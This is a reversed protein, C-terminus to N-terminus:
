STETKAVTESVTTVDVYKHTPLQLRLDDILMLFILLGLWSGQPMGGRLTVWNSYVNAIKVGNRSAGGKLTTKV